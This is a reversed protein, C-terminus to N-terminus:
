GSAMSQWYVQHRPCHEQWSTKLSVFAGHLERIVEYFGDSWIHNVVLLCAHLGMFTYDWAMSAYSTSPLIVLHLVCLIVNTWRWTHEGVWLLLLFVGKGHMTKHKNREREEHIWLYWQGCPQVGVQQSDGSLQETKTGARRYLFAHQSMYITRKLGWILWVFVCM